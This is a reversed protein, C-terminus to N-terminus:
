DLKGDETFQYNNSKITEIIAEDSTLYEYEKRLISLYEKSMDKKLQEQLEEIENDELYEEENNLLRKTTEIVTRQEIFEKAIKYTECTEGHEKIIKDATDSEISKINCYSERDVDFGDIIIGCTKADEYIFDWWEYDVNSYRLNNVANQRQEENLEDFSYVTYSKTQPMIIGEM